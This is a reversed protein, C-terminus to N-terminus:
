WVKPYLIAKTLMWGTKHLPKFFFCVGHLSFWYSIFTAIVAGMAGYVPILFYNLVINLICGLLLSFFFIRTWNMSILFLTRASSLSTFLGSWILVALLPGAEGYATGFLLEVLWGSLFTMPIAIAYAILAMLNYLKQIQEQFLEKNTSWSEM